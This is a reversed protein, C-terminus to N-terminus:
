RPQLEARFPASAGPRVEISAELDYYGPKSITLEHEGAPLELEVPTTGLFRGEPTRVDAGPPTTQFDVLGAPVPDPTDVPEEETAAAEPEATPPLAAQQPTVGEIREVAEEGAESAAETATEAAAEAAERVQEAAERIPDAAPEPDTAPEDPVDVTEQVPQAPEEAPQEVPEDSAAPQEPQQPIEAPAAAEQADPAAPPPDERTLWWAGGGGAALLVLVALTAAATRGGGARGPPTRGAPRTVVTEAASRDHAVTPDAGAVITQEAGGSVVTREAGGAVLTADPDRRVVTEAEGADVPGANAAPEGATPAEFGALARDIAATFDQASQFRGDPQKALATAIVADMAPTVMTSLKSAPLPDSQTIKHLVATYSGTFPKEGTLLQYLVVGASFLDARHDTPEGMCQEPAMYGPTGIVSGVQTLASSEIRAIGFDAIKVASDMEPTVMINSPKVDRHVVGNKHAYGLGALLGRMIRLAFDLSFREGRAFYADLGEGEVFEMAIYATENDEGYDFVTVINPHSLRGAARAERQFRAVMEEREARELLDTRITKLAVRREIAPDFAEYVVGMAGRGLERVLTYKGLSEPHTPRHPDNTADDSM